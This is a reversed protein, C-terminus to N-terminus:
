NTSNDLLMFLHATNLREDLHIPTEYNFERERCIPSLNLKELDRMRFASKYRREARPKNLPKSMIKGYNEEPFKEIIENKLKSYDKSPLRPLLHTSNSHSRLTPIDSFRFSPRDTNLILPRIPTSSNKSYISNLPPYPQNTQLPNRNSLLPLLLKNSVFKPNSVDVRNRRKKYTIFSM